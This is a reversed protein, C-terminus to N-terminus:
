DSRLAERTVDVAVGFSDQCRKIWYKEDMSYMALLPKVAVRVIAVDEKMTKSVLKIAHGNQAVAAMCLERDGKMEEPLDKLLMGNQSVAVKCLARDSKREESCYQLARWNQAVAAM